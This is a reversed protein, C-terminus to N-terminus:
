KPFFSKKREKQQVKGSERSGITDGGNNHIGKQCRTVNRITPDIETQRKTLGGRRRGVVRGRRGKLLVGVVLGSFIFIVFFTSIIIIIVVVIAAGLLLSGLAGARLASSASGLLGSGNTTHALSVDVRCSKHWRGDHCLELVLV